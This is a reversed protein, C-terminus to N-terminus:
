RPGAFLGAPDLEARVADLADRVDAPWARVWPNPGSLAGVFNPQVVGTSWAGVAGVLAQAVAPVATTFLDPAPASVVFLQAAADRGVVADPGATPRALAGGLLRVEAVAFPVHQEPGMVSLLADVFGHELDRLLVGGDMVPMPEEPDAHVAGIAAYPMPGVLDVLPTALARLPAVTAAGAEADGDAVVVRVHVVCRGRLPEPVQPLDPLRLIAFSPTVTEPLDRSWDVFGHLVRGADEAAFFLGGGYVEAMPVLGIEVETVVGPLHKGGRAARFVEPHSDATVSLQEGTATVLELRRLHDSAWGLTRGAPGLGGGLLLGVVGVTPSSGCVPALGYPAAAELVQGWRAGGGVRATRAEPDVHVDALAATSVVTGGEVPALLGHGTAVVHVRDGRVAAERVADAVGAATTPTVVRGPRHQHALNFAAIRADSSQDITM